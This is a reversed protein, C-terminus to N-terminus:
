ICSTMTHVNKVIELKCYNQGDCASFLDAMEGNCKHFVKRNNSKVAFNLMFVLKAKDIFSISFRSTKGLYGQPVQEQFEAYVQILRDTSEDNLASDISQRNWTLITDLLAQPCIETNAQEVFVDFLLRDLSEVTTKLCFIAKAFAKGSLIHKLCGKETLGAEMLIEAYTSGRAKHDTHMGIYNMETHFLGPGIIHKQYKDPHDWVLPLAKM